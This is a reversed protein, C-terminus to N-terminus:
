PKVLGQAAIYKEVAPLFNPSNEISTSAARHFNFALSNMLKFLFVYGNGSVASPAPLSGVIADWIAKAALTCEVPHTKFFNLLTQM